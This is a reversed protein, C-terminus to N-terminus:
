KFVIWSIPFLNRSYEELIYHYELFGSFHRRKRSIAYKNDEPKEGQQRRNVTPTSFEYIVINGFQKWFMDLSLRSVGLPCTLVEANFTNCSSGKVM